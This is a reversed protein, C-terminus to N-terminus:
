LYYKNNNNNNSNLLPFTSSTTFFKGALAPSMLSTPKIGQHPLDGPSPFPLGSWYEQRTFGMSLPAQHAATWLSVSLWVPSFRSLVCAPLKTPQNIALVKPYVCTSELGPRVLKRSYSRQCEKQNRVRLERWPLLSSAVTGIEYSQQSSQTLHGM